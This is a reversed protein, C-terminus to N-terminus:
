ALVALCQSLKKFKYISTKHSDSGSIIPDSQQWFIKVHIEELQIQHPTVYSVDYMEKEGNKRTPVQLAQEAGTHFTESASTKSQPERKCSPDQSM